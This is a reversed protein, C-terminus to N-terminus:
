FRLSTFVQNTGATGSPSVAVFRSQGYCVARLATAASLDTSRMTWNVGDISTMIYNPSPAPLSSQAVAVFVGGGFTVGMWTVAPVLVSTWTTGNYSYAVRNTGSQRVAVYVGNGYTVSDWGSAGSVPPDGVTWNIGDTSVMSATPGVAVFKGDGFCVANWGSADAARLTWTIGDTSTMVRNTGSNAVAVFIGNGYCISQWNNDAPSTRSTWTAGNPSTMVRNGTGNRSVAVFLGAGYAIGTWLNNAATTAASWVVGDRSWMAGNATGVDAVAVFIDGGFCVARWTNNAPSQRLTWNSAALEAIRSEAIGGGLREEEGSPKLVYMSGDNKSYLKSVGSGPTTPTAQHTTSLVDFIGGTITKNTLTAVAANKDADSTNDVNGLGVDGKVIGTPTTIVPSTLTKNTLTQVADLTVVEKVLGDLAFRFRKATTNYWVRGDSLGVGTPDASLSELNAAELQSYVKM